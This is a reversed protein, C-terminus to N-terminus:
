VDWLMHWLSIRIADGFGIWYATGDVLGDLCAGKREIKQYALALWTPWWFQTSLKTGVSPGWSFSSSHPRHVAIRYVGEQSCVVCHPQNRFLCAGCSVDTLDTIKAAGVLLHMTFLLCHTLPTQATCATNELQRHLGILSDSQVLVTWHLFACLDLM